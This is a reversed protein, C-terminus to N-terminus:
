APENNSLPSSFQSTVSVEGANDKKASRLFQSAESLMIVIPLISNKLVRKSNKSKQLAALLRLKNAPLDYIRV